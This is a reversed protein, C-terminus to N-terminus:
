IVLFFGGIVFGSVMLFILCYGIIDRLGMGAIALLPLAWFPQALNTWADGWSVALIVKWFPVDLAQAGQLVVPAQVAWQGGGSPVFFNVLGASLFSFFTYTGPSSMSVFYESLNAAWGSQTILAMIGAYLPYQILVPSLKAAGIKAARLYGM